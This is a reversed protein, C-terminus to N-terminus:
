LGGISVTGGRAVVTCARSLVAPGPYLGALVSMTGGKPVFSNATTPDPFPHAVSGNYPVIAAPAVFITTWPCPPSFCPFEPVPPWPITYGFQDDTLSAYPNWSDVFRFDPIHYYNNAPGNTWFWSRHFIIAKPDTGMIGNYHVFPIDNTNLDPPTGLVEVTAPLFSVGDGDHAPVTLLSGERNPWPEHAGYEAYIVPHEFLLSVPDRAFYVYLGSPSHCWGSGCGPCQAAHQYERPLSITLKAATITTPNLSADYGYLPEISIGDPSATLFQEIVCGHMLYTVRTLLDCGWDYVVTITTIDGDHYDIISSNFAWLITYEISVTTADIEEVHAYIGHGSGIVDDWPEGGQYSSSRLHLKYGPDILAALPFSVDALPPNTLQEPHNWLDINTVTNGNADTMYCHKVFWQWSCPRCAEPYNTNANSLTTKIYPRFRQALAQQESLTLAQLSLVTSTLIIVVLCALYQSAATGAFRSRLQKRIGRSLTSNKM